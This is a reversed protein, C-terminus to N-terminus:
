FLRNTKETVIVQKFKLFNIVCDHNYSAFFVRNYYNNYIIIM